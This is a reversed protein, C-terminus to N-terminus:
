EPLPALYEAAPGPDGRQPMVVAYEEVGPDSPQYPEVGYMPRVIPEVPQDGADPSAATADDTPPPMPGMYMARPEPPCGAVLPGTALATMVIKRFVGAPRVRPRNAERDRESMALEEKV